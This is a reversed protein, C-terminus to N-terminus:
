LIAFSVGPDFGNILVIHTSACFGCVGAGAATATCAAARAAVAAARLVVLLTRV